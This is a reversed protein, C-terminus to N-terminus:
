PKLHRLPGQRRPFEVHEIGSHRCQARRQGADGYGPLRQEPRRSAFQVLSGPSVDPDPQVSPEAHCPGNFVPSAPASGPAVSFTEINFRGRFHQFANGDSDTDVDGQYWSVGFPANPVQIVFFDFGTNPPLGPRLSSCTKPMARPVSTCKRMPM